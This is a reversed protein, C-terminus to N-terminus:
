ALGKAKMAKRLIEPHQFRRKIGEVERFALKREGWRRIQMTKGAAIEREIRRIDRGQLKFDKPPRVLAPRAFKEAAESYGLQRLIKEVTALRVLKPM